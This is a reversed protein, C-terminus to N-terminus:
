GPAAAAGAAPLGSWSATDQPGAAPRVEVEFGTLHAMGSLRELRDPGDAALLNVNVGRTRSAVALGDAHQHGWGHPLAVTGPMLDPLLRVPVRVTATATSVDALGGEVLGIRAADEPHVFLHNTDFSGDVFSAINHTWSNHTKHDRKSILRLRWPASREAEWDADLGAAAELFPRPALHVLGDDTVVRQGLYDGGEDAPRLRGHPERLLAAFGGQGTVRLLLSLLARQPLARPRGPARRSHWAMALELARQAIRSGFIPRGSARCLDVYISAEDRQEGRPPVVAETAALYPRTQMGLFLPFAFPLDPRQLPSTAPLCWHALAGTENRYIDLTVLLELDALAERLRGANPMTLLPNGGTVFLARVQRPGPTLIEGALLGGPLADNVSEFDGIRSRRKQVFMGNRVGFRAFDFVGRGVLAGGRRDLNGSVANIAEQLWACLTGHRGQGVGTGSALCAGDAERYSRVIRRLTEAPMRTVVAAREPTWPAVLAHLAEWGSTFRRVREEDIGGTAALEHLFALYFFVDTGPRIFVHEGAVKASETRRPDVIFVRGGRAEIEKLRRGPNPVQLFTWKSVAPNTGVLVLCGVHDLDVFPQTFPFGYVQTAMAFKNACDQTASTYLSRSGVAQMFGQAFIPHLVGFGAATGVYMAISDPDRRHLEAVKGGIEALAQEWSTKEWRSGIRKMPYELRDPSDYMEHQHLGKICAYGRTAVHARDPRIDVVRGAEVDVELGCSAECIRCFTHKTERM